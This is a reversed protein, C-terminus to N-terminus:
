ATAGEEKAPAREARMADTDAWWREYALRALASVADRADLVAQKLAPDNCFPRRSLNIGNPRGEQAELVDLSGEMGYLELWAAEWGDPHRESERQLWARNEDRASM